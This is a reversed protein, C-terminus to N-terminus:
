WLPEGTPLRAPCCCTNVTWAPKCCPETPCCWPKL